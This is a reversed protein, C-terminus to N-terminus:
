ARWISRWNVVWGGGDRPAKWLRYGIFDFLWTVRAVMLEVRMSDNGSCSFDRLVRPSVRSFTLKSASKRSRVLSLDEPYSLSGKRWHLSWILCVIAELVEDPIFGFLRGDNELDTYGELGWFENKCCWLGPLRIGLTCITYRVRQFSFQSCIRNRVGDPSRVLMRNFRPHSFFRTGCYLQRLTDRVIIVLYIMCHQGM